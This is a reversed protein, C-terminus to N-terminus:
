DLPLKQRPLELYENVTQPKPPEEKEKGTMFSPLFSSRHKSEAGSNQSSATRYGRGSRSVRSPSSSKKSEDAWPMLVNKTKTFFSKTGDSFRDWTSKKPQPQKFEQDYVPVNQPFTMHGIDNQSDGVRQPPSTPKKKAFPNLNPIKIWSEAQSTKAAAFVFACLVLAMLLRNRM